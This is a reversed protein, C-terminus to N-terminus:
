ETFNEHILPQHHQLEAWPLLLGDEIDTRCEESVAGEINMLKLLFINMEHYRHLQKLQEDTFQWDHHSNRYEFMIQRLKEIWQAGHLVWWNQIENSQNSTPLANKLSHLHVILNPSFDLDLDLAHAHKLDLARALTRDLTRALLLAHAQPHYLDINRAPKLDLAHILAPAHAPKLDLSRVLALAHALNIDLARALARALVLARTFLRSPAPALASDIDLTLSYLLARIAAPKHNHQLASSKDRLWDLFTQYITEQTMSKDLAQKILRLLLDAPQQSTVLQVVVAQWQQNVIKNALQKPPLQTLWEVTFYEQFTLHSFSWLKDAREILLGHQAEISKLVEIGESVHALKLKKHIKQVLNSQEFLVFNMPNEFKSAAIEILLAEKDELTLQRYAETGIEWGEIEKEDNWCKLLWNIGKKCLGARNTPIEGNDQLIVCILSLLLPTATLEKLDPQKITVSNVKDWQNKAEAESQGNSIFWNLVFSKVQESSFDAVEVSTFGSPIAEMIQTRCTLIFRNKNSYSRSINKVQAKVSSRFEHTTVEDLGDMLVLFKGMELLRLLSEETLKLRENIANFLNWKRDKIQRLEILVAIKNPQFKGKCWDIALHKMFTTKGSGPKGLIVLNPNQNAIEFGPNRQIRKSLALRDKSIDFNKLLNEQTSFDKREPKKLLWVDVYLQDVGIEEGSLLRMRSHQEMIRQRSHEQLRQILTTTDQPAKSDSLFDIETSLISQKQSLSNSAKSNEWAKEFPQQNEALKTSFLKLQFQWREAGKGAMQKRQDIVLGLFKKGLHEKLAERVGEISLDSWEAMESLSANVQLYIVDGDQVLKVKNADIRQILTEVLKWAQEFKKPGYSTRPM